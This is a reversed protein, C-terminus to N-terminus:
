HISCCNRYKRSTQDYQVAHHLDDVGFSRKDLFNVWDAEYLSGVNNRVCRWRQLDPRKGYQCIVFLEAAPQPRLPAFSQRAQQPRLWAVLTVFAVTLQFAKNHLPWRRVSGRM